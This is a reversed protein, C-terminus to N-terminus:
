PHDLSSGKPNQVLNALKTTFEEVMNSLPEDTRTIRGLIAKESSFQQLPVTVFQERYTSSLANLIFDPAITIANGYVIMQCLADINNTILAIRNTLNTSMLTHAINEIHEDKYLVFVENHLDEPSITKFFRLSSRNNMILVANGEVIPVWEFLNDRQSKNYSLLGMHAYGEQVHKMVTLTDGEIMQVKLTPYTDMLELMTQVVQPVFGPITSITIYELSKDKFSLLASQMNEINKLVAAAHQLILEGEATPVVGKKTRYFIVTDMEEELQKISQSITPVTLHHVSAAKTFSGWQAASLLYQLQSINM